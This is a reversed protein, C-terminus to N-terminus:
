NAATANVPVTLAGTGDSFYGNVSTLELDGTAGACAGTGGAFRGSVHVIVKSGDAEITGEYALFLLSSEPPSGDMEYMNIRMTGFIEAGEPTIRNATAGNVHTHGTTGDEFSWAWAGTLRGAQAHISPDEQQILFTDAFQYGGAIEFGLTRTSDTMIPTHVTQASYNARVPQVGFPSALVAGM